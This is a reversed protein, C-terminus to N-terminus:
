DIRNRIQNILLCKHQINGSDPKPLSILGDRIDLLGHDSGREASKWAQIVPCAPSAALTNLVTGGMGDTQIRQLQIESSTHKAPITLYQTVVLRDLKGCKELERGIPPLLQDDSGSDTFRVIFLGGEAGSRFDSSQESTRELEALDAGGATVATFHFQVGTGVDIEIHSSESDIDNSRGSMGIPDQDGSGDGFIHGRGQFVSILICGLGSHNDQGSAAGDAAPYEFSRRSEVPIEQIAIRDIKEYRAARDMGQGADVANQSKQLVLGIGNRM